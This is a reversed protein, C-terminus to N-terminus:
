TSRLISSSIAVYKIMHVIKELKMGYHRGKGEREKDDVGLDKVAIINYDRAASKCAGSKAYVCEEKAAWQKVCATCGTHGCSSLVSIEEVPLNERECRPCSVDPPTDSQKQFDRVVNFYRLSRVRGVLEKGLRRIEHTKERHEWVKEKMKESLQSDDKKGKRSTVKAGAKDLLDVIMERAEKDGVADDGGRTVRVYEHFLSEKAVDGKEVLDKERAVAQKLCQLLEAMCEQLQKKREKVIVDCAKM